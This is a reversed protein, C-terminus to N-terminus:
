QILLSNFESNEFAEDIISLNLESFYESYLHILLPHYNLENDQTQQYFLYALDSANDQEIILLNVKEVLNCLSIFLNHNKQPSVSNIIQQTSIRLEVDLEYLKQKIDM